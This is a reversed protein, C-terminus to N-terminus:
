NFVFISNKNLNVLHFIAQAYFEVVSIHCWRNTCAWIQNSFALVLAFGPLLNSHSSLFPVPM